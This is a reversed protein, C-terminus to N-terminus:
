QNMVYVGISLMVSKANPKVSYLTHFNFDQHEDLLAVHLKYRMSEEINRMVVPFAEQLREYPTNPFVTSVSSSGYDSTLINKTMDNLVRTVMRTSEDYTMNPDLEYVLDLLISTEDPVSISVDLQKDKVMYM